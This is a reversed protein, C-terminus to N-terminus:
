RNLSIHNESRLEVAYQALRMQEYANLRTIHSFLMAQALEHEANAQQQMMHWVSVLYLSPRADCTSLKKAKILALRAKGLLEQTSVAKSTTTEQLRMEALLALGIGRHLEESFRDKNMSAIDVLRSHGHLRCHMPLNPDIVEALAAQFQRQADDFQSLKFYLEGLQMRVLVADPFAHLYRQLITAAGNLDNAELCATAKLLLARAQAMTRPEASGPAASTAKAEPSPSVTPQAMRTPTSARNGPGVPPPVSESSSGDPQLAVLAPPELIVFSSAALDQCGALAIWTLPTLYLAQTTWSYQRRKV